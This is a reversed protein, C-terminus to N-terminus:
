INVTRRLGLLATGIKQSACSLQWRLLTLFANSLVRVCNWASYFTRQSNGRILSSNETHKYGNGKTPFIYCWSLREKFNLIRQVQTAERAPESPIYSASESPFHVRTSRCSSLIQFQKVGKRYNSRFRGKKHAPLSLISCLFCELRCQRCKWAQECVTKKYKKCFCMSNVSIKLVEQTRSGTETRGSILCQSSSM